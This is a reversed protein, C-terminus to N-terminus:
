ARAPKGCTSFGDKTSVAELDLQAAQLTQQTEAASITDQSRAERLLAHGAADEKQVDAVFRKWDSAMVSPPQLARLQALGRDDIPLTAQAARIFAQRPGDPTHSITIRASAKAAQADTRACIADARAILESKSLGQSAGGCGAATLLLVLCSLGAGSANWPHEM